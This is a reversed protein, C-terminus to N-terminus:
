KIVEARKWSILIVLHPAHEIFKEDYYRCLGATSPVQDTKTHLKETFTHGNSRTVEVESVYEYKKEEEKGM